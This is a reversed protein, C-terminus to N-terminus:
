FYVMLGFEKIYTGLEWVNHPIPFILEKYILDEDYARFPFGLTHIYVLLIVATIILQWQYKKM